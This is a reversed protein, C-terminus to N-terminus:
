GSRTSTLQRIAKVVDLIEGEVITLRAKPASGRYKM